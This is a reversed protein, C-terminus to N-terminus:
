PLQPLSYIFVQRAAGVAGPQPALLNASIWLGCAADRMDSSFWHFGSPRPRPKVATSAAGHGSPWPDGETAAPHGAPTSHQTSDRARLPPQVLRGFLFASGIGSGFGMGAGLGIGGPRAQRGLLRLTSGM